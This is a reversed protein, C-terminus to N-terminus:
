DDLFIHLLSRYIGLPFGEFTDILTLIHKKQMRNTDTKTSGSTLNHINLGITKSAKKLTSGTKLNQEGYEKIDPQVTKNSKELLASESETASKSKTAVLSTFVCVENSQSSLGVSNEAKVYFCFTQYLNLGNITFTQSAFSTSGAVVFVGSKAGMADFITYSTVPSSGTETPQNWSLTISGNLYNAKLGLPSSPALCPMQEGLIPIPPATTPAPVSGSEILYSFIIPDFPIASVQCWQTASDNDYNNYFTSETQGIQFRYPSVNPLYSENDTIYSGSVPENLVQTRIPTGVIVAYETPSNGNFINNSVNAGNAEVRVGYTFNNFVNNEVTNSSARDLSYYILPKSYYAPNSCDMFYLNQSRRSGIWVGTEGSSSDTFDNDEIVNYHSGYRRPYWATPDSNVDEGCNTYIFVGGASNDTIQNDEITNYSSGDIAIGERGTSFLRVSIGSYNVLQGTPYVGYYGNHEIINNTVTNFKSGSDLYIGTSGCNKIMNQSITVHTVYGDVYIGAGETYSVTNNEILINSLYNVYEKGYGLSEFGIRTSLIGEMFGEVNCNEVKVNAMNSYASDSIKIGAGVGIQSLGDITAGRCNLTTNSTVINFNEYYTCGPNLMMDHNVTVTGTNLTCPMMGINSMVINSPLRVPENPYAVVLTAISVLSLLMTLFVCNLGFNGLSRKCMLILRLIQSLKMQNMFKRLNKPIQEIFVRAILM